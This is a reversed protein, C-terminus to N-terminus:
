AARRRRVVAAVAALAVIALGTSRQSPRTGGGVRCGCGGMVHGTGGDLGADGAAADGRQLADGADGANGADSHTADTAVVDAPRADTTSADRVSADPTGADMPLAPLVEVIAELQNDAPGANASRQVV